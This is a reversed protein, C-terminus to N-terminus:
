ALAGPCTYSGTVTGTFGGEEPYTTSGNFSLQAGSAAVEATSVPGSDGWAITAQPNGPNACQASLAAVQGSFAAGETASISM